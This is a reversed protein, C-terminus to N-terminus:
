ERAFEDLSIEGEGSVAEPADGKDVPTGYAENIKTSYDRVLSSPYYAEDEYLFKHLAKVNSELDMCLVVSGKKGGLNKSTKNFPFGGTESLNYSLADKALSLIEMNTFNTSIEPFITNVIGNITSIDAKKLKKVVENIVERQRASRAYDDGKTYRIRAYATAQNGDLHQIGTTSLHNAKAGTVKATTDIYSNMWKLEASDIDIDVGGVLDVMDTVAKFDVTIYREIDLDLNANLMKVAQEAGGIMYARNAKNFNPSADRGIDTDLFTDRYVSVLKVDKTDKNISCIMIVDSHGSDTDGNSRNDVGFLAIDVYGGMAEMTEESLDKNVHLELPSKVEDREIKDLSQWVYLAALAALLVFLEIIFIVIKTKKKKRRGRAVPLSEEEMDEYVNRM